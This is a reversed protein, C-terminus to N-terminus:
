YISPRRNNTTHIRKIDQNKQVRREQSEEATEIRWPGVDVRDGPHLRMSGSIKQGNVMTGSISPKPRGTDSQAALAGDVISWKGGSSILHCHWRSTVARLRDGDPLVLHCDRSRGIIFPSDSPKIEPAGLQSDEKLSWRGPGQPHFSHPGVIM